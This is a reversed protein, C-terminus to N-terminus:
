VSTWFYNEAVVEVVNSGFTSTLFIELVSMTEVVLGVYTCRADKVGRTTWQRVPNAVFHVRVVVILTGM